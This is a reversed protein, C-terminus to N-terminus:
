NRGRYLAPEQQSQLKEMHAQMEPDTFDYEIAALPRGTQPKTSNIVALAYELHETIEHTYEKLKEPIRKIAKLVASGVIYHSLHEADEVEHLMDELKDDQQDHADSHKKDVPTSALAANLSRRLNEIASRIEASAKRYTIAVTRGNKDQTIQTGYEMARSQLEKMKQRALTVLHKRESAMRKAEVKAHEASPDPKEPEPNAAM